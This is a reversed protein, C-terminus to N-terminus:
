AKNILHYIVRPRPGSEDMQSTVKRSRVMVYLYPYILGERNELVDDGATQRIWRVIEYGTKDGDRLASLVLLKLDAEFAAREQHSKFLVLGFVFCAIGVLTTFLNAAQESNPAIHLTIQHVLFVVILVPVFVSLTSLLTSRM